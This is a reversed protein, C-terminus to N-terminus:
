LLLTSLFHWSFNEIEPVDVYMQAICPRASKIEVQNPCRLADGIHTGVNIYCSVRPHSGILYFPAWFTSLSTALKQCGFFLTFCLYKNKVYIDNTGIKNYKPVM